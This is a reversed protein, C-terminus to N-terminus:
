SVLLGGDYGQNRTAGHWVTESIASFQRNKEYVETMRSERQEKHERQFNATFNVM